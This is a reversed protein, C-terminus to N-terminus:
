TLFACICLVGNGLSASCIFNQEVYCLFPLWNGFKCLSLGFWCQDIKSFNMFYRRSIIKNMASNETLGKKQM